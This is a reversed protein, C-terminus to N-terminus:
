ANAAHSGDVRQPPRGFARRTAAGLPHRPGAKVPYIHRHLRGDLPPERIVEIGLYTATAIWDQWVIYLCTVTRCYAVSMAVNHISAASSQGIVM